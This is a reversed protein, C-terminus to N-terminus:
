KNQTWWIQTTSNKVLKSLLLSSSNFCIYQSGPMINHLFEFHKKCCRCHNEVSAKIQSDVWSPWLGCQLVMLPETKVLVHLVSVLCNVCSCNHHQSRCLQGALTHLIVTVSNICEHKYSNPIPFMHKGQFRIDHMSYVVVFGRGSPKLIEFETVLLSGCHSSCGM